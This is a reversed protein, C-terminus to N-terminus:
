DVEGGSKNQLYIRYIEKTSKGTKKAIKKLEDKLSNGTAPITKLLTDLLDSDFHTSNQHNKATKKVGSVLITYEGKLESQATLEVLEKLDKRIFEEHIKTLERALVAQREGLVEYINRLTKRLRHPAEYFVITGPFEMLQSLAAMQEQKKRPLFGFFIFAETGLGSAALATVVAAAGPIPIVPIGADVAQTVLWSGPDSIGPMGADTIVAVKLGDRLYGLLEGTRERENHRHYSILRKKIGYHNLLKLSHRTDEAAILDAENLIRIARFTIDELNGIPTAVLYLIGRESGM